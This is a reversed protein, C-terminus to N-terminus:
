IRKGIKVEAFEMGKKQNSNEQRHTTGGIEGNRFYLTPHKRTPLIRSDNKKPRSLWRQRYVMGKGEQFRRTDISGDPLLVKNYNGM